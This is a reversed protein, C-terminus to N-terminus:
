ALRFIVLVAALWVLVTAVMHLDAFIERSTDEGVEHHHLLYLYRFFGYTVIPVTYVLAETRHFAVTAEDVTYLAYTALAVGATTVIMLDLIHESYHDLVARGNSGSSSKMSVIEAHRKAFGLFLALMTGCLILWKSPPIGVGVTGVLIRLMYGASLTFVDLIVVHKLRISYFLSLVLYLALLGLVVPSVLWGFLVGAALSGSMAALALPLSVSGSALPRARKRPHLRDSQRDAVDNLIYVASSTLAFAVAALLVAETLGPELWGKAFFYGTFVFGSKLWHHPRLLRVLEGPVKATIPASRSEAAETRTPSVTQAQKQL